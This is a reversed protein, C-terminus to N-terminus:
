VRLPIDSVLVRKSPDSAGAQELTTVFAERLAGPFQTPGIIIREILDPVEIGKIKLEANNVLPIIKIPQPAGHVSKIESRLTGNDEIGTTHFIRWEREEHFGPHKTCLVAMRFVHFMVGVLNDQPIIRLFDRKAELGTVLEEFRHSFQEGNLYAVPSSFAGLQMEDDFFPENKVVLAVGNSGGYARWMSLRGYRDESDLHESLCALYTNAKIGPIWGDFLKELNTDFAPYVENLLKKLRVGLPSHYADLLCRHGHEMEMYDNMCSAKRMWVERNTIIRLAVDASCYHVFRGGMGKIRETTEHAHRFLIPKLETAWPQAGILESDNM